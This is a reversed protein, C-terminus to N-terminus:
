AFACPFSFDLKLVALFRHFIGSFLYIGVFCLLGVVKPSIEVKFPLESADVSWIDFSKM